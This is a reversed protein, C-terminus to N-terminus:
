ENCWSTQRHHWCLAFCVTAATLIKIKLDPCSPPITKYPEKHAALMGANYFTQLSHAVGVGDEGKKKGEEVDVTL